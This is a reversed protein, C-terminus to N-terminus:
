RLKGGAVRHKTVLGKQSKPFRLAQMAARPCAFTAGNQVRAPGVSAISVSGDPMVRVGFTIAFDGPCRSVDVGGLARRVAAPDPTAPLPPASPKAAKNKKDRRKKDRRERADRAEDLGREIEERAVGSRELAREVQELADRQLREAQRQIDNAVQQSRAAPRSAERVVHVVVFAVSGLIGLVVAMIVIAVIAGANRGSTRAVQVQVQRPPAPRPMQTQQLRAVQNCYDCRVQTAGAPATLPAQCNPCRLSESRVM